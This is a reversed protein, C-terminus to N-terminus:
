WRPRRRGRVGADGGPRWGGVLLCSPRPDPLHAGLTLLSVSAALTPGPADSSCQGGKALFGRWGLLSLHSLPAPSAGPCPTEPVVPVPVGAPVCGACAPTHPAQPYVYIHEAYPACKWCLSLSRTQLNWASLDLGYPWAARQGAAGKGARPPVRPGPGMEDRQNQSEFCGPSKVLPGVGSLRTRDGTQSSRVLRPAAWSGICVRAKSGARREQLFGMHSCCPLGLVALLCTFLHLGITFFNLFVVRPVGM